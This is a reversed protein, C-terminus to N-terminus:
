AVRKRIFENKPSNLSGAQQEQQSCNLVRLISGSVWDPSGHPGVGSADNEGPVSRHGATMCHQAASSM